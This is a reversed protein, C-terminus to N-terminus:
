PCQANGLGYDPPKLSFYSTSHSFSVSRPSLGISKSCNESRPLLIGSSVAASARFTAPASLIATNAGNQSILKGETSFTKISCM